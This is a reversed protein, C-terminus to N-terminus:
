CSFTGVSTLANGLNIESSTGNFNAANNFKGTSYTINTDAGDHNSVYDNSNIDLPWYSSLGNGLTSNNTISKLSM